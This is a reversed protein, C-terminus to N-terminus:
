PIKYSYEGYGKWNQFSSNNEFVSFYVVNNITSDSEISYSIGEKEEFILITSISLYIVEGEMKLTDDPDSNSFIYVYDPPGFLAVFQALRIHVKPSYNLVYVLGDNLGFDYFPCKYGKFGGLKTHDYTVCDLYYDRIMKQLDSEKSVGPTIGFLCPPGCPKKTLLGNDEFYNPTSTIAQIRTPTPVLSIPPKSVLLCGCLALSLLLCFIIKYKDILYIKSM